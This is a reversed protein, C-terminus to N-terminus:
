FTLLFDEILWLPLPAQEVKAMLHKHMRQRNKRGISALNQMCTEEAQLYDM